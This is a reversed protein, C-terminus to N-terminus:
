EGLIWWSLYSLMADFPLFITCEHMHALFWSWGMLKFRSITVLLKSMSMCYLLFGIKSEFKVRPFCILFYAYNVHEIQIAPSSSLLHIKGSITSSQVTTTTHNNLQTIPFSVCYKRTGTRKYTITTTDLAQWSQKKAIRDFEREVREEELVLLKKTVFMRNRLGGRRM